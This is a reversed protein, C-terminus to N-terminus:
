PDPHFNWFNNKGLSRPSFEFFFIFGSGLSQIEMNKESRPIFTGVTSDDGVAVWVKGSAPDVAQEWGPPLPPVGWM